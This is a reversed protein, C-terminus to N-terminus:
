LKRSPARQSRRTAVVLTDAIETVDITDASEAADDPSHATMWDGRERGERAIDSDNEHGVSPSQCYGQVNFDNQCWGTYKM